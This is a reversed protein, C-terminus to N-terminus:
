LAAYLRTLIFLSAGAFICSCLSNPYSFGQPDDIYTHDVRAHFAYAELASILLLMGGQQWYTDSSLLYMCFILYLFDSVMYILFFLTSSNIVLAKKHEPNQRNEQALKIYSDMLFYLERTNFMYFFQMSIFFLTIWRM